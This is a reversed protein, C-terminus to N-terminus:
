VGVWKKERACFGEVRTFPVLIAQQHQRRETTM